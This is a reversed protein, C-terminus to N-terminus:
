GGTTDTEVVSTVVHKHFWDELPQTHFEPTWRVPYCRMANDHAQTPLNSPNCQPDAYTVTIVAGTETKISSMRWRWMVPVGAAADVRNPLAEGAFEVKPLTIDEGVHGTRQISKLWLVVQEDDGYDKFEHE